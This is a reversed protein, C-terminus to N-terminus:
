YLPFYFANVKAGRAVQSRWAITNLYNAAGFVEQLLVRLHHAQRHDCHLWLSGDEALLERLLPLREYMFQLYANESWRDHFQAQQGFIHEASTQMTLAKPGRLRVKRHYNVGSDFPPDIYILKVKGGYGNALLHALVDQNDGLFLLNPIGLASHALASPSPEVIEYKTNRIEGDTHPAFIEVLRPAPPTVATPAHKGEWNLQPTTNNKVKRQVKNKTRPQDM